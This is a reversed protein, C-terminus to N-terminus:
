QVPRTRSALAVGIVVMGSGAITRTSWPEDFLLTGIALAVIPLAYTMLSLRTAPLRALLWYYLTFTVVSGLVALYVLAGLSRADLTVERGREFLLACGAMVAATVLMPVGALHIPHFGSGWKKVAVHSVAGTAPSILVVAAATAVGPGALATLDESFIVAVGAVGLVLGILAGPRLPEGDLWFHALVAVFIPFTSFLVATLGSPVWQEAWYVVGYSLVFGFLSEIAWVRRIIPGRPWGLGLARALMVLLSGAIAFRAAVGTFPPIGELGIRIVSWTSGWILILLALVGYIGARGSVTM